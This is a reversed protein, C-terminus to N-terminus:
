ASSWPAGPQPAGFGVTLEHDREGERLAVVVRAATAGFRVLERDNRDAALPRHM